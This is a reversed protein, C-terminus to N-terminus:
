EALGQECNGKGPHRYSRGDRCPRGVARSLDVERQLRRKDAILDRKDARLDDVMATLSTIAAKASELERASSGGSPVQEEARKNKVDELAKGLFAM